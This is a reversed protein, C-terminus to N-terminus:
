KNCIDRVVVHQKNSQVGQTKGKRHYDVLRMFMLLSNVLAIYM